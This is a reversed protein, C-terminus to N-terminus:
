GVQDKVYEKFSMSKTRKPFILNNQKFILQIKEFACWLYDTAEEFRNYEELKLALKINLEILTMQNKSYSLGLARIKNKLSIIWSKAQSFYKLRGEYSKSLVEETYFIREALNNILDGQINYHEFGENKKKFRM